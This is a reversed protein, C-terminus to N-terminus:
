ELSPFIAFIVSVNAIATVFFGALNPILCNNLFFTIATKIERPGLCYKQKEVGDSFACANLQAKGIALYSLKTEIQSCRVASNRKLVYFKMSKKTASVSSWFFIIVCM